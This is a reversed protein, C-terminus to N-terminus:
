LSLIKLKARAAIAFDEPYHGNIWRLQAESFAGPSEPLRPLFAYMLHQGNDGSDFRKPYEITTVMKAGMSSLIKMTIYMAQDLSERVKSDAELINGIRDLTMIQIEWQSTQAKPVFVMVNKDEHIILSKERDNNGDMRTNSRIAKIYNDFFNKGTEKKYQEIFEAVLDGCGFSQLKNQDNQVPSEVTKPLLAFQQHVQQHSAHLRYHTPAYDFGYNWGWLTSNFNGPIHYPNKSIVRHIEKRLNEIEEESLMKRDPPLRLNLEAAMRTYTRQYYLHRLGKMDTLSLNNISYRISDNAMNAAYHGWPIYSNRRLYEFIHSNEPINKCEGVIESDGQVGPRLVMVEKYNDPLMPNNAVAEFLPHNKIIARIRNRDDKKYMLGKPSKDDSHHFFDCSIHALGVLDEPDTSTLALSLLVPDPLDNFIRALKESSVNKENIIKKIVSCFSVPKQAPLNISSAPNQANSEAWPKAIYTTGRFPFPNPIEFIPDASDEIVNSEPFNRKNKWPKKDSFEGLTSIYDNERLNKVDFRPEHIGYLFYGDSSISTRLKM